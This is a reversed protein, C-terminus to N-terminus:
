DEVIYRRTRRTDEDPPLERHRTRSVGTVIGIGALVVAGVGIWVPPLGLLYAGYALGAIVILYGVVYLAFNSM